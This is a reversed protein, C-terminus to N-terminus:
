FANNSHFRAHTIMYFRNWGAVGALIWVIDHCHWLVWLDPYASILCPWCQATDLSSAGHGLFPTRACGRAFSCPSCCGLLKLEIGSSKPAVLAVLCSITTFCTQCLIHYLDKLLCLEEEEQNNRSRQDFINEPM